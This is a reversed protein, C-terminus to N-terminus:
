LAEWATYDTGDFWRYRIYQYNAAAAPRAVLVRSGYYAIGVGTAPFPTYQDSAFVYCGTASVATNVTAAGTFSANNALEVTLHLLDGDPDSPIPVSLPPLAAAASGGAIVAVTGNPLLYKLTLTDGSFEGWILAHGGPVSSYGFDGTTKIPIIIM